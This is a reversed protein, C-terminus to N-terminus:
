QSEKDGEPHAVEDEDDDDDPVITVNKGIPLGPAIAVGAAVMARAKEDTVVAYGDRFQVVGIGVVEVSELGPRLLPARIVRVMGM